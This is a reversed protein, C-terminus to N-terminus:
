MREMRGMRSFCITRSCIVGLWDDGGIDFLRDLRDPAMFDDADLICLFPATSAEIALNRGHSPGRNHDLRIIKLRSSGDDSAAAM